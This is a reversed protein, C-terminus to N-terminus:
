EDEKYYWVIIFTSVDCIFTAKRNLVPVHIM